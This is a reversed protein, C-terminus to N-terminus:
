QGIHPLFISLDRGTGGFLYPCVKHRGSLGGQDARNMTWYIKPLWLPRGALHPAVVLTAGVAGDPHIM